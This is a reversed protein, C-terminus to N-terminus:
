GADAPLKATDIGYLKVTNTWCMREVEEPPVGEMIRALTPMSNPWIADHHPYDNGWLLCDLGIQERTLIGEHDDEFTAYFNRRFYESPKMTLYDVAHRP